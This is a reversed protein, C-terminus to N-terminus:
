YFRYEIEFDEVNFGAEKLLSNIMPRDAEKSLVAELCLTKACDYNARISIYNALYPKGREDTAYESHTVPLATSYLNYDKQFTSIFEEASTDQDTTQNSGASAIESLAFYDSLNDRLEYFDFNGNQSLFTMITAADHKELDITFTKADLDPHSIQIEYVGPALRFTGNSYRDNGNVIIQSSSPVVNFNITSKKNSDIVLVIAIAIIVVLDVLLVLRVWRNQFFAKLPSVGENQM